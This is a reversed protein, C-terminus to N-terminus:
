ETQEAEEQRKFAALKEYFRPELRTVRGDKTTFLNRTNATVAVAGDRVRIVKYSFDMKAKNLGTLTTQVEYEDDYRCSNHYKVEVETIPTVVGSEMLENLDIGCARLYAVRGLELWHLYNAHYVVAMLDTEPFRVRDRYIVMKDGEIYLVGQKFALCLLYIYIYSYECIM